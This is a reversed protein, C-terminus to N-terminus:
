CGNSAVPVLHSGLTVESSCLCALLESLYLRQRFENLKRRVLCYRLSHVELIDRM